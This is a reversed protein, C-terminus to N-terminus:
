FKRPWGKASVQWYKGLRAVSLEPHLLKEHRGRARVQRSMSRGVALLGPKSTGCWNAEVKELACFLLLWFSVSSLSSFNDAVM